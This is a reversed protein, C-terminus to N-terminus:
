FPYNPTQNALNLWQGTAPQNHKGNALAYFEEALIPLGLAAVSDLATASVSMGYMAFIKRLDKGIIKSSLVFLLDPNSITNNSFQGMAYKDKNNADWARAVLRDGKTLLTFYDLSSEMSPIAELARYKTFLFALQFHVARMPNQGKNMDWLSEQMHLLQAEGSTGSNRNSVIRQYLGPHDTAHGTDIGLTKFQRMMQISALINNDCEVVCGKGNFTIRMVRQVTNHGLEHAHGWGTGGIGAAGDSPNGSCLFGCKAIWGIFHQVGPARHIPGSCDWGFQTCLLSVNSSMPMNNYGNAIHNSDFLSGKVQDLIVTRPDTNGMARKAYFITQQIEGGIFKSTQWGFDGRNLAAVAEAIEADSQPKTFDFHAYKAAGRIRLTISQGATAGSYRLMLPGGFPTIFSNEGGTELPIPFSQPERPRKYGQNENDTLPNGYARVYSTQVFLEGAGAKDVVEIYVPKGPIAGRGIATIGSGQAITVEITEASSSVPIQQAAAPMYDGQGGPSVTTSSRNYAVWSDAAFTNLFKVPQNSRSITGYQITPRYLDAWEILLRHLDTTSNAFLDIGRKQMLAMEDQFQTIANIADTEASIAFSPNSGSMLNLAKVLAGMQDARQISSAVTRDAGVAFGITPAFYNGPYGGLDMGIGQVVKRGGASDGWGPHMYIIAKGQAQYKRVQESLAPDDKVSAGFVLVDANQWCTNNSAVLDCSIALPTKGLLQIFRSVTPADYGATAFRITSPLPGTAKGTVVWTFARTFFPLHQTERSQTAMWSLVNAGYALARGAGFQSIAAMGSGDDAVILPQASISNSRFIEISNKSHNLALNLSNDGYIDNIAASQQQQYSSARQTALVLAQALRDSVPAPTPSVGSGPNPTPELTDDPSPTVVEHPTSSPTPTISVIPSNTPEPTPSATVMPTASPRPTTGIVPPTSISPTPTPTTGPNTAPGTTAVGDTSSCPGLDIWNRSDKRKRWYKDSFINTSIRKPNKNANPNKAQYNKGAFSVLAGTAYQLSGSWTAACKKVVSMIVAPPTPSAAVPNIALGSNSSKIQIPTAPAQPITKVSATASSTLESVTKALTSTTVLHNVSEQDATQQEIAPAGELSPPTTDDAATQTTVLTPIVQTTDSIVSAAGIERWLSPSRNPLWSPDTIHSKLAQYDRGEFTVIDNVQYAGNNQWLPAALALNSILLLAACTM